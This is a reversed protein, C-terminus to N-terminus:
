KENYFYRLVLRDNQSPMSGRHFGLEDFIIVGSKKMKFDFDSTDGNAKNVFSTNTLFEKYISEGVKNIIMKKLPEITIQDRFDKLKWFPNYKIKKAYLLDSYAKQVLNSKPIYALSGNKYEVDTLYIFFKISRLNPNILKKPSKSGNYAYDCHWDIVNKDSKVSLYSDINLLKTKKGLIKNALENLNLNLAINKLVQSKKIILFDLKFIKVLYNFKTVSFHSSIHGKNFSHNNLLLIIKKFNEQGTFNSVSTVGNEKVENSIKSFDLNM